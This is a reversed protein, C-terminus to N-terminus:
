KEMWIEVLRRRDEFPTWRIVPLGLRKRSESVYSQSRGIKKSLEKDTNADLYARLLARDTKSLRKANKKLKMVESFDVPVKKEESRESDFCNICDEFKCHLCMQIQEPTDGICSEFRGYNLKAM